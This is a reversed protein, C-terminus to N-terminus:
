KGRANPITVTDERCKNPLYIEKRHGTEVVFVTLFEDEIRCLVRYDGVRYRWFESLGGILVKGRTRPNDLEEISHMYKIIRRANQVDMKKFQKQAHDTYHVKYSM